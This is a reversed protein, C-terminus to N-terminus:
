LDGVKVPHVNFKSLRAIPNGAKTVSYKNM